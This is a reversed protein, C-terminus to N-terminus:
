LYWYDRGEEYGREQLFAELERREELPPYNAVLVQNDGAGPLASLPAVEQNWLGQPYREPFRELWHFAVGAEQLFRGTLKGKRGTGLLYLPGNEQRDIELFRPIKLQFFAKQRYHRSNRSTREPHERWYLTVEPLSYIPLGQAYWRFFLDYDEPYTLGLFGGTKELVDRRMLWNPSAVPCERYANQAHRQRHNLTNLWDEYRQYGESLTDRPFYRVQGTVVTDPSSEELAKKMQHLRRPPYWDDADTRGVWKGRAHALAAELAPLIGEGPSSLIRIRPNGAAREQLIKRTAEDARDPVALLEWSELSQDELSDLAAALFDRAYRVPMLLSVEPYPSPATM